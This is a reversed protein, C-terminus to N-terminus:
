LASVIPMTVDYACYRICSLAFCSLQSSLTDQSLAAVRHFHYWIWEFYLRGKIMGKLMWFLCCIQQDIAHHILIWLGYNFHFALSSPWTDSDVQNLIMYCYVESHTQKWLPIVSLLSRFKSLKIRLPPTRSQALTFSSLFSIKRKQLAACRNVENGVQGCAKGMMVPQAM